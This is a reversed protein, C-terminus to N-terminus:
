KMKHALIGVMGTPFRQPGFADLLEHTFGTKQLLHVVQARPMLRLIHTEEDRRYLDGAKRFIVIRRTLINTRNDAESSALLAWGDGERNVFHPGPGPVRGPESIDFLFVGGPALSAHIKAFLRGLAEWSQAPDFMYEWSQAPDFMYNLIEGVAGVAVCSPLEENWVSGIRFEGKPVRQQAMAIFAPSQDIGLVDYGAAAMLESLIGSGCGLDIFRGQHLGRERLNAILLPAANRAYNGFGSDHISALDHRYFQM